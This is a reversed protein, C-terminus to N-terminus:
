EAGGLRHGGAEEVAQYGGIRELAARFLRRPRQGREVHCRMGGGLRPRTAGDDVRDAAHDVLVDGRLIAFIADGATRRCLPLARYTEPPTKASAKTHLRM